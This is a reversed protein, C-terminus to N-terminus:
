RHLGLSSKGFNGGTFLEREVENPNALYAPVVEELVKDYMISNPMTVHYRGLIGHGLEHFIILKHVLSSRHSWDTRNILIINHEQWFVGGVELLPETIALYKVKFIPM